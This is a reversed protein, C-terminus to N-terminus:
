PKASAPPEAKGTARSPTPPRTTSGVPPTAPGVGSGTPRAPSASGPEGQKVSVAHKEHASKIAILVNDVNFEGSGRELVRNDTDVIVFAPVSTVALSEALTKDWDFDLPVCNMDKTAAKMAPSNFVEDEVHTCAVSYWARFYVLTLKANAESDARVHDYTDYRWQVGPACGFCLLPLLCLGVGTRGLGASENTRMTKMLANNRFAPVIRRAASVISDTTLAQVESPM